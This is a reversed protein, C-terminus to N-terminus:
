WSERLLGVEENCAARDDIPRARWTETGVDQHAVAPYHRHRALRDYPSADRADDVGRPEDHRGTEDIEMRVDLRDGPHRVRLTMDALTYRQRESTGVASARRREAGVKAHDVSQRQPHVDGEQGPVVANAARHEPHRIARGRRGLPFPHLLHHGRRHVVAGEPKRGPEEVEGARERFHVLDDSERLHGRIRAPNIRRM